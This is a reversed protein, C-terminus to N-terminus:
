FSVQSPHVQALSSTSHKSIQKVSISEIARFFEFNVQDSIIKSCIQKHGCPYHVPQINNPVTQQYDQPNALLQPQPIQVVSTITPPRNTKAESRISDNNNCSSDKTSDIPEEVFSGISTVASIARSKKM